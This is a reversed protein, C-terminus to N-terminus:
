EVIIKIETYKKFKNEDIHFLTNTKTVDVVGDEEQIEEELIDDALYWKTLCIDNEYKFNPLTAIHCNFLQGWGSEIMGGCWVPIDHKACLESIRKAQWYGGVRQPKINIIKCASIKIAQEADHYGKVSEDLCIPTKLKKQLISHDVLDNYALPQEIMLLDLKDLEKLIKLDALSYSSNADVMIKLDPYLERIRSIYETDIGPKVKLKVRDPKNEEIYRKTKEICAEVSNEFGISIAVPIKTKTGGWLEYLPKNQKQSELHWYASEIAVKAMNNGRIMSYSGELDKISDIRNRIILPLMVEQLLKITGSTFDPEYLPIDMNASSGIGVLGSQDFLKLFVIQRDTIEGFGTRFPSKLPIVIKYIEAKEIKM